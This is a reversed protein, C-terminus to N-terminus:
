RSPPRDRRPFTRGIWEIAADFTASMNNHGQTASVTYDYRHGAARLAKLKDISLDVPISGDHGGFIWFGPISLKALDEASDTDRGLFDPWVYPEVRSALAMAFSPPSPGDMDKTFNSYIDEESVRCVPASWLLLFAARESKIAALPAIWGAQSIGAIGAPAGGLEKRAALLTLAAAADDALLTINMGTVSQNGEYTGGSRGVGRKDYVLAAVGREAFQRALALNRQQPGSGHVFVVAASIRRDVPWAISGTLTDGHSAFTVTELRPEVSRPKASRLANDRLPLAAAMGILAALFVHTMPVGDLNLARAGHLGWVRRTAERNRQLTERWTAPLALRSRASSSCASAFDSSLGCM